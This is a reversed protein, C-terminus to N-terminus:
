FVYRFPSSPLIRLSTQTPPETTHLSLDTIIEKEGRKWLPFTSGEVSDNEWKTGSWKTGKVGSSPQLGPMPIEVSLSAGATIDTELIRKVRDVDLALALLDEHREEDEESKSRRSAYSTPFLRVNTGSYVFRSHGDEVATIDSVTGGVTWITGQSPHREGARRGHVSRLVATGSFVTLVGGGSPQHCRDHGSKGGVATTSIGGSSFPYRTVSPATVRSRSQFPDVSARRHRM